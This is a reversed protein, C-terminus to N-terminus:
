EYANLTEIVKEVKEEDPLWQTGMDLATTQPQPKRATFHLAQVGTNKIQLANESNVGSGAMVQIRGDAIRVMDAITELGDEAKAKGGSTLVHNFGLEALLELVALPDRCVDIARHFTVQLQHLRAIRLLEMNHQVHFGGDPHLAGFVVGKAGAAAAASIDALMVAMENETYSFNGGRPRIMVFVPINCRSSVTRIMGFSPTTGGNQLDACLELRNAGAREASLSQALDETCVEITM